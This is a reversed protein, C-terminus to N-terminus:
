LCHSTIKLMNIVNILLRKCAFLQFWENARLNLIMQSEYIECRFSVYTRKRNIKHIVHVCIQSIIMLDIKPHNEACCKRFSARPELQMSRNKQRDTHRDTQRRNTCVRNWFTPVSYLNHIFFSHM